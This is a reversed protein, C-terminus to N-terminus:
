LGDTFRPMEGSGTIRGILAALPDRLLRNYAEAKEDYFSDFRLHSIFENYDRLQREWSENPSSQGNTLAADLAKVADTLERCASAYAEPTKAEDLRAWASATTRREAEAGGISESIRLLNYSTERLELLDNYVSFGAKGNFFADEAKARAQHLKWGGGVFISLVMALVLVLTATSRKKLRNM